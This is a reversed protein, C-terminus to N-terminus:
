SVNEMLDPGIVIPLWENYTISQIEAIVIKRAAQFLCNSQVFFRGFQLFYNEILSVSYCMSQRTCQRLLMKLLHFVGHKIESFEVKKRM